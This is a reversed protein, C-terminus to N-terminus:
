KHLASKLMREVLEDYTLGAQAAAMPLLSRETMGPITNIELVYPRGQLSLRFDVRAAGECGLIHYAEVALTQLRNLRGQMLPAPCTYRTESKKYKAQYDYFGGPAEIEVAPLAKGDMVGIAIERGEIFREVIAKTDYQYARRLASRWTKANRVISVGITSGENSPKVVVPWKLGGPPEWKPSDRQLVIGPPMPIGNAQLISKTSAKDMAIASARVNSGTYPIGLVELLGQVTGDEGGRGHLAMFAVEVKKSRLAWPLRADADIPRVRYGRRTLAACVAQGTLLSIEREASRGGMLVGVCLSKKKM